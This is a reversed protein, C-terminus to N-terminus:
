ELSLYHKRSGMKIGRIIIGLIASKNRFYSDYRTYNTGGRLFRDRPELNTCFIKALTQLNHFQVAQLGLVRFLTLM